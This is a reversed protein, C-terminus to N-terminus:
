CFRCPAQANELIGDPAGYAIAEVQPSAPVMTIVERRRGLARGRRHLGAASQVGAVTNAAPVTWSTRSWSAPCATVDTTVPARASNESM